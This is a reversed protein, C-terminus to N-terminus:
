SLEGLMKRFPSLYLSSSTNPSAKNPPKPLCEGVPWLTDRNSKKMIKIQYHRHALMEFSRFACQPDQRGFTASTVLSCCGFKPWTANTATPAVKTPETWSRLSAPTRCHGIPQIVIHWSTDLVLCSQWQLISNLICCAETPRLKAAKEIRDRYRRYRNLLTNLFVTNQM